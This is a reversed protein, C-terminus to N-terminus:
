RRNWILDQVGHARNRNFEKVLLGFTAGVFEVFLLERVHRAADFVVRAAGQSKKDHVGHHIEAINNVFLPRLAKIPPASLM